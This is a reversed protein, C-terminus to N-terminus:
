LNIIKIPERITTGYEFSEDHHINAKLTENAEGIGLMLEVRKDIGLTHMMRQHDSFCKCFGTKYGISGAMINAYGSSLGIHMNVLQETLFVYDNWTKEKLNLEEQYYEETKGRFEYGPGLAKQFRNLWVLVLPALVQSNKKDGSDTTYGETCHYLERKITDDTIVVLDFYNIGNKQPIDTAFDVIKKTHPQPFPVSVDWNRQTHATLKVVKKLEQELM